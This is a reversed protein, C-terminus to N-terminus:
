NRMKPTQLLLSPYSQPSRPHRPCRHHSYYPIPPMTLLQYSKNCLHPMQQLSSPHSQQTRNRCPGRYNRYYPLPLMSLDQYFRNWMPRQRSYPFIPSHTRPHRTSCRHRYYPLPPMSVTSLIQEVAPANAVTAFSSVPTKQCLLRPLSQLLTITVNLPTSLNKEM